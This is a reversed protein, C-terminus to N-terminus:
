VRHYKLLARYEPSERYNAKLIKLTDESMTNLHLADYAKVMITLAAAVSFTGQFHQVVEAARNAAAVYAKRKLYFDAILVKHEAIVNRVYLLRKYSDGVYQSHPFEELVSAFSQYSKELFAIDRSAPDVGAKKQLWSLGQNFSVIGRMYYAYDTHTGRPYLNIYRDAALASADNDGKQYYAYIIDLQAQPTYSGFPYIADLAELYKIANGYRHKALEKEGANFLQAATQTRYSAFPDADKKSCGQLILIGLSVCLLCVIRKM